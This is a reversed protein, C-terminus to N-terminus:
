GIWLTIDTSTDSNSLDARIYPAYMEVNVATEDTWSANPVDVYDINDASVQLKVTAGDFEGTLIVTYKRQSNEPRKPPTALVSSAGDSTQGNFLFRSM